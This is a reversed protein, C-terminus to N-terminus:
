PGAPADICVTAYPGLDLELDAPVRIPRVAARFGVPDRMAREVSTPDLVRLTGSGDPLGHVVLRSVWPTLNAALLRTGSPGRLAIGTAQLPDSTVVDVVAADRRELVDAFVHALPYTDGPRSPFRADPSGGDREVVGQWGTTEYYTVSDVPAGLLAALSGLTWAAGLLSAQRVDVAAPLDDPGSPGAPYPGFRTAITVPGVCIDRAGAFSRAFRVVDRQVALNEIISADDAAHVTPSVAFGIATQAPDSPRDRNVDAFSQNTGGAFPVAGVVPELHDRVLRVVSAPTTGSVASFGDRAFYALVRVVRVGATRLREALEDLAPGSGENAFVALELAVGGLLTADALARDLAALGEPTPSIEVRLHDPRLPLLRDAESASLPRGHGPQLYGIPPVSPAIVDGLMLTPPRAPRSAPVTGRFGITLVQRIRQGDVADFPFGLALPTGYSKFNGDTWNRHDQLELLDGELGIVAELGPTVELALERFPEYMGTLMGDVIRQPEIAAPLTGRVEGAPTTARFPRGVSEPLGHHVNFGIKSYRFAGHCVGDLVYRLTGDAAGEISGRWRFDIDGHRHAAAFRVVFGDVTEDITWDDFTAPITNWPADRVAVYVRQVLEADGVRIYRLDAGDLWASVPGARLSRPEATPLCRGTLWRAGDDAPGRVM